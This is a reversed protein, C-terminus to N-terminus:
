KTKADNKLIKGLQTAFEPRTVVPEPLPQELKNLLSINHQTVGVLLQEDGVQVLLIREKQGVTLQKVIKMNNDGQIAPLRLRKLLWALVLILMIVLLLSALTTAVNVEPPAAMAPLSFGTLLLPLLKKMMQQDVM